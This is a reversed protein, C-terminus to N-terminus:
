SPRLRASTTSCAKSRSALQYRATAPVCEGPLAIRIISRHGDDSMLLLGLRGNLEIEIPARVFKRSLAAWARAVRTGGSLPKRAAFAGRPEGAAGPGGGTSQLPWIPSSAATPTVTDFGRNDRDPPGTPNAPSIGLRSRSGARRWAHLGRAVKLRRSARSVLAELRVCGSGLKPRRTVSCSRGLM